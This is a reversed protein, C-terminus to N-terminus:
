STSWKGDNIDWVAKQQLENLRTVVGEIEGSRFGFPHLTVAIMNPDIAALMDRVYPHIPKDRFRRGINCKLYDRIDDKVFTYGNDIAYVRHFSDMIFNGSHRDMAGTIFDFACLLHLWPNDYDERFEYGSEAWDVALPSLVWAQLSGFGLGLVERGVTPPVLNFGLARDLAYAALEREPSTVRSDTCERYYSTEEISRVTKFVACQTTVVGVKNGGNFIVKWPRHIGRGIIDLEDIPATRLFRCMDAHDLPTLPKRRNSWEAGIDKTKRLLADTTGRLMLQFTNSLTTRM